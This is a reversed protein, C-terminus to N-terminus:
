IRELRKAIEHRAYKLCNSKLQFAQSLVEYIM